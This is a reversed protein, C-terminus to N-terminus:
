AERIPKGLFEIYTGASDEGFCFQLRTLSRHEDLATLGFLKGDYYFVMNLLTQGTRDGFIGRKWLKCEQAPSIPKAQCKQCGIGESVLLKMELDLVSQFHHFKRREKSLFNLTALGHDKLYRCNQVSTTSQTQRILSTTQSESVFLM